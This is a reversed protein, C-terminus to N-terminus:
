RLPAVNFGQKVVNKNGFSRCPFHLSHPQHPADLIQPCNHHQELSSDQGTSSSPSTIEFLILLSYSPLLSLSSAVRPDHFKVLVAAPLIGPQAQHDAGYSWKFRVIEGRAGNM